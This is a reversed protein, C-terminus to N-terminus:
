GFWDYVHTFHCYPNLFGTSLQGEHGKVNHGVSTTKPYYWMWTLTDLTCFKLRNSKCFCCQIWDLHSFEQQLVHHEKSYCQTNTWLCCLQLLWRLRPVTNRRCKSPHNEVQKHPPLGLEGGECVPREVEFVSGSALLKLSPILKTGFSWRSETSNWFNKKKKFGQIPKVSPKNNKHQKHVFSGQSLIASQNRLWNIM